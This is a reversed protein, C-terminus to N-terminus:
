VPDMNILTNNKCLQTLQVSVTLNSSASFANQVGLIDENMAAQFELFDASIRPLIYDFSFFAKSLLCFRTTIPGNKQHFGHVMNTRKGDGLIRWLRFEAIFTLCSARFQDYMCTGPYGWSRQTQEETSPFKNVALLPVKFSVSVLSSTPWTWPVM